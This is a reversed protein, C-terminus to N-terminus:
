EKLIYSLAAIKIFEKNGLGNFNMKFQYCDLGTETSHNLQNDTPRLGDRYLIRKVRTNEPVNLRIVKGYLDYITDAENPFRVDSIYVSNGNNVEEIILSALKKVWFNIDQERRVDTGWYQVAKRSNTTRSFISDDGILNILNNISENDANYIESLEDVKLGSNYDVVIDDIESRIPNSYSLKKFVVEDFSDSIDDGITDKGSGMKGSMAFLIASGEKLRRLARIAPDRKLNYKEIIQNM